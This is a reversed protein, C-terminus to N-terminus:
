RKGGGDNNYTGDQPNERTEDIYRALFDDPKYSPHREMSRKRRNSRILKLINM